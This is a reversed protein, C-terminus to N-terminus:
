GTVRGEMVSCMSVLMGEGPLPFGDCRAAASNVRQLTKRWPVELARVVASPGVGVPLRLGFVVQGVGVRVSISFGACTIEM